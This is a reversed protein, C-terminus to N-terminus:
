VSHNETPQETEDNEGRVSTYKPIEITFTGQELSLFVVDATRECEGNLQSITVDSLLLDYTSKDENSFNDPYGYYIANNKIDRVVIWDAYREHFTNWLTEDGYNKNTKSHFTIFYLWKKNVVYAFLYAMIIAMATLELIQIYNVVIPSTDILSTLLSKIQIQSKGQTCLNVIFDYLFYVSLSFMAINMIEENDIRNRKSNVTKYVKYGIIGPYLFLGIKIILANIIVM